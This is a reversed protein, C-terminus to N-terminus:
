KAFTRCYAVLGRIDDDSLKDAFPRMKTRGDKKLGEKLDKFIADDSYAKQYQPDSLDKVGLMHGIRTQGRGDAAHCSACNKAWLASPADALLAPASLALGTVLSFFLAKKM